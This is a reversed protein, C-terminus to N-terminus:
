QGKNFVEDLVIEKRKGTITEWYLSNSDYKREQVKNCVACRRFSPSVFREKYEVGLVETTYSDYYYEWNCFIHLM